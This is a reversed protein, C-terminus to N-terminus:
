RDPPADPPPAATASAFDKESLLIVNATILGGGAPMEVLIGWRMGAHCPESDYLVLRGQRGPVSLGSSNYVYPKNSVPCVLPLPSLSGGPTLKELTPPLAKHVSYYLLLHGCLDHLREACPDTLIGLRQPEPAATQCGATLVAAVPLAALQAILISSRPLV